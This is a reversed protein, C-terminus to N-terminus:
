EQEGGQESETKEDFPNEGDVLTQVYHVVKWREEKTLQSAHSGMNNKGYQLTHFMKGQTLGAISSYVPPPPYAGGSKTTISGDGAGAEGHCHICFQSYIVEGEALVEPTLAIPNVLELSAREYGEATNEYPYPFNFRAKSPDSAFPITGKPTQRASLIDALSDNIRDDIEGYDVYEEIAPSRYMDPMYEIGPSLPDSSCAVLTLSLALIFSLHTIHFKPAKM